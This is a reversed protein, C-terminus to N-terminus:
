INFNPFAWIKDLIIWFYELLECFIAFYFQKSKVRLVSKKKNSPLLVHGSLSQQRGNCDSHLQCSVGERNRVFGNGLIFVQANLHSYDDEKDGTTWVDACM